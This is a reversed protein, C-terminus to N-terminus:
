SRGGGALKVGDAAGLPLSTAEPQGAPTACPQDVVTLRRRLQRFPELEDDWPQGMLQTLQVGLTSGAGAALMAARIRGEPILIDGNASAVATFMGLAPTCSYRLADCGPSRDETVEFRLRRWAGLASALAGAAGPPAQFALETRVTGPDAPQAAWTMASAQEGIIGAAAWEIHPCLAPAASHIHLIGKVPM